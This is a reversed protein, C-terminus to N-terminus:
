IALDLSSRIYLRRDEVFTIGCLNRSLANRAVMTRTIKDPWETNPSKELGCHTKPRKDAGQVYSSYVKIKNIINQDQVWNEATIPANNLMIQM